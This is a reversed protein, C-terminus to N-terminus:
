ELSGETGEISLAPLEWDGVMTMMGRHWRAERMFDFAGSSSLAVATDSSLSDGPNM